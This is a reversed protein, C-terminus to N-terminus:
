VEQILATFRESSWRNNNSMNAGHLRSRCYDVEKKGETLMTKRGMESTDYFVYVVSATGFIYGTLSTQVDRAV